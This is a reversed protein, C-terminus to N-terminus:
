SPDVPVLVTTAAVPAMGPAVPPAAAPPDDVAMDTADPEVRALAEDVVPAAADTADAVDAPADLRAAAVVVARGALPATIPTEVANAVHVNPIPLASATRSSTAM